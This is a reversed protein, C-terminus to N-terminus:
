RAWKALKARKRPQSGDLWPYVKLLAKALLGHDVRGDYGIYQNGYLDCCEMFHMIFAGKGVLHCDCMCVPQPNEHVPWATM